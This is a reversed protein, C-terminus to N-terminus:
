GMFPSPGIGAASSMVLLKGGRQPGNVDRFFKVAEKSVNTSGFFNVDFVKRATAEPVIEVIGSLGLGANSM